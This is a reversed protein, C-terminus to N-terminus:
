AKKLLIEKPNEKQKIQLKTPNKNDNKPYFKKDIMEGFNLDLLSAFKNTLFECQKIRSALHIISKNNEDRYVVYVGSYIKENIFYVANLFNDNGNSKEDSLVYNSSVLVVPINIGALMIALMNATYALTDTGHTIIIGNYESFDVERLEQLLINWDFVTMNESLINLPESIDFKVNMDPCNLYFNEILIKKSNGKSKVNIVNNNLESSITGGTFIVRVRM